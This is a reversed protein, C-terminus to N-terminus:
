SNNETRMIHANFAALRNYLICKREFVAKEAPTKLLKKDLIYPGLEAMLMHCLWGSEELNMEITSRLQM